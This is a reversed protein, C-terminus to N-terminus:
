PLRARGITNADTGFWIFGSRAQVVCPVSTSAVGNGAPVIEVRYGSSQASGVAPLLVIMLYLLAFFHPHREGPSSTFM